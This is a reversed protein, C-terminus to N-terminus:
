SVRGGRRLSELRAERTLAAAYTDRVTESTGAFVSLVRVDRWTRAMWSTEDLGDLGHLDLCRRVISQIRDCVAFKAIHCPGPDLRRGGAGQHALALTTQHVFARCAETEARLRDLLEATGPSWRTAETRRLCGEAIAVASAAVLLREEHIVRSFDMYGQHLAGVTFSKPIHCDDFAVWGTPSSRLGLKQHQEIVRFGPTDTPVAMFTMSLAKKGPATRALVLVLDAISGNTIFMKEGRLLWHDGCDEATTALADIVASGGGPETVGLAAITEGRLIPQLFRQHIEASGHRALLPCVSNAPLLLSVAAGLAGAHVLEEAMVVSYTCDLGRGGLEKPVVVGTLGATACARFLSRPLTEHAEWSELRPGLVDAALECITHRFLRHEADDFFRRDAAHAPRPRTAPEFASTALPLRALTQTDRLARVLAHSEMYGRGGHLQLCSEVLRPALELVLQRAQAARKTTNSSTSPNCFTREASTAPPAILARLIAVEAALDALHHRVTQLDSLTGTGYPREITFRWTTDLAQQLLALLTTNLLRQGLTLAARALTRVPRRPLRCGRFRLRAFRAGRLGLLRRPEIELGPTATPLLVQELSDDSGRLILLLDDAGPLNLALPGEGDLRFGGKALERPRASIIGLGVGLERFPTESGTETDGSLDKVLLHTFLSVAVSLAGQRGLEKALHMRAEECGTNFLLPALHGAQDLNRILQGIGYGDSSNDGNGGGSDAWQEAAVATDVIHAVSRRTTSQM